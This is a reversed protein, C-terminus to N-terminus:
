KNATSNLNCLCGSYTVKNAVSASCLAFVFVSDDANELGKETKRSSNLQKREEAAVVGWSNRMVPSKLM